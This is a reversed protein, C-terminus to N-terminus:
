DNKEELKTLLLKRIYSDGIREAEKMLNNRKVNDNDPQNITEILADLKREAFDGVFRDMFFQNNLIDYVNACFSDIEKESLIPKGDELCLINSAPIDSM